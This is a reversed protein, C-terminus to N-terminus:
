GDAGVEEDLWDFLRTQALVQNGGQCHVQSATSADFFMWHKTCTLADFFLKSEGPTADEASGEMVLTKARILPIGAGNHYKRLEDILAHPTSVGHKWCADDFYWRADPMFKAVTNIAADFARPGAKHLPLLGPMQQFHRLMARAWSVVGPNAILGHLRHEFSAARPALYGGFSLGMLILRDSNIRQDQEAFDIVKGIPVEWDPRFVHGYIRLSAAQGPGHFSLVHYGRELAGDIVWMTDEPWAHLGQHLLLTTARDSKKAYHMRGFLASGGYPIRVEHSDYGRLKLARGHLSLALHTAKLLRPDQHNSYRILGARYYAGARYFHAAASLPHGGELAQKGYRQVRKATQLWAEFWSLEDGPVIRTATDLVEGVDTLGTSALGM